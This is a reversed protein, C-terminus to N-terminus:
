QLIADIQADDTDDGGTLVVYLETVQEDTLDEAEVEYGRVALRNEVISRTGTNGGVTAPDMMTDDMVYNEDEIIAEITAQKDAPSDGSTLALYLASVQADTLRNVDIDTQYNALGTEVQDRLMDPNQALLPSALLTAAALTALTRKM